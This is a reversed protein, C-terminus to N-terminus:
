VTGYGEPAKGLEGEGFVKTEETVQMNRRGGSTLTDVLLSVLEERREEGGLEYVLGLGKSAVEQTLEDSEALFSMFTMQIRRLDNQIASHNGSYKVLALLWVCSAQRAHPVPNKSHKTVIMEILDKMVDTDPEDARAEMAQATWPDRAAQSRYGAGACSLSEGITFQLEVQRIKAAECLGDILKQRHAFKPEGVLLYGLAHASREQVKNEKSNTLRDLLKDVVLMKCTPPNDTKDEDMGM